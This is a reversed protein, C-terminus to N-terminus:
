SKAAPTFYIKRDSVSVYLHLLRLEHLGLVIDPRTESTLGYNGVTYTSDLPPLNGQYIAPNHIKLGGISLSLFSHSSLYILNGIVPIRKWGAKPQPAIGFIAEAAQDSLITDEVATDLLATLKKGDLELEITMMGNPDISLPEELYQDAWYVVKGGCHEPSFLALKSRSLDLDIDFNSLFAAGLIGDFPKPDFFDVDLVRFDLGSIVAHDLQLNPGHLNARSVLRGFGPLLMAGAPHAELGRASAETSSFV